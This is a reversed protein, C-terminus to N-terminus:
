DYRVVEIEIGDFDRFYFRRGPEYDAHSHPEFGEAKVRAEVEDLDETVVIGLHNLGGVNSYSDAAKATDGKSYIALYSDKGGVHYSVGGFIATGKWRVEWGFIRNLMQATREPDTVTVNAHELVADSM